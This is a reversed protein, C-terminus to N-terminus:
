TRTATSRWLQTMREVAKTTDTVKLALKQHEASEDAYFVPDDVLRRVIALYEAVNHAILRRYRRYGVTGPHAMHVVPVGHSMAELPAAGGCLPWTELYVDILGAIQHPDGPGPTFMRERGEFVSTDGHGFALYVSKDYQKLLHGVADLFDPRIKELRGPTGFVVSGVGLPRRMARITDAPVDRHLYRSHLIYPVEDWPKTLGLADMGDSMTDMVLVRDAWEAKSMGMSWYVQLPASRSLFVAQTVAWYLDAWIVAVDDEALAARIARVKAEPTALHSFDRTPVHSHELYDEPGYNYLIIDNPGHEAAMAEILTALCRGNAYTGGVQAQSTLFCLRRKGRLPPGFDPVVLRFPGDSLDSIRVQDKTYDDQLIWLLSTLLDHLACHGNFDLTGWLKSAANVIEEKQSRYSQSRTRRFDQLAEFAEHPTM